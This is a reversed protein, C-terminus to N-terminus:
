VWRWGHRSFFRRASSLFMRIHRRGKRAANGGHHVIEVSPEFMLKGSSALRRSLDFDEFYMFFRPDFGGVARFAPGRCVLCAGSLLRAPWAETESRDRYEYRALRPAFWRGGRGGIFGRLFLTFVSPYRKCLYERNGDARRSLPNIAVVETDRLAALAQAIATGALEVDPNLVLYYDSERSGLAQNHGAGFGVNREGYVIDWHVRPLPDSMVTHMLNKLAKRYADCSANDVVCVSARALAGQQLAYELSESLSRLTLELRDLASEYLVISVALTPAATADTIM